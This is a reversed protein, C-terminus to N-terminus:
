DRCWICSSMAHWPWTDRTEHALGSRSTTILFDRPSTVFQTNGKASLPSFNRNVYM